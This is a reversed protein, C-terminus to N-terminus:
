AAPIINEVYKFIHGHIHKTSSRVIGTGPQSKKGTCYDSISTNSVGFRLATEKASAFIDFYGNPYTVKVQKNHTTNSASMKARTESSVIKGKKAASIKAKTEDSTKKGRNPSDVYQALNMCNADEFRLDIYYQEREDLLSTDEIEEIVEFYFNLYKNYVRQMFRNKHRNNKLDTLHRRRRISLEVSQGYYFYCGISIKYIGQNSM